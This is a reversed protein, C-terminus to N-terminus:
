WSSFFNLIYYKGRYHASTHQKGDLDPLAFPPLPKGVLPHQAETPSHAPAERMHDDFVSVDNSGANAVFVRGSERDVDMGGPGKGVPV